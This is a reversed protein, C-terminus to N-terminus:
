FLRSQRKALAVRVYGRVARLRNSRRTRCEATCYRQSHHVDLSPQFSGGCGLCQRPAVAQERSERHAQVVEGIRKSRRTGLHPLLLLAVEIAREGSISWRYVPKDNRTPRQNVHVTGYGIVRAFREVVDRDTMSLEMRATPLDRNRQPALGCHGEGEFLGAAWAIEQERTM